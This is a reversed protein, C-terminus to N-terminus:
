YNSKKLYNLLHISSNKVNCLSKTLNKNNLKGYQTINVKKNILEKVVQTLKYNSVELIKNKSKLIEKMGINKSLILYNSYLM